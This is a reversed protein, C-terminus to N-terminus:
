IAGIEERKSAKSRYHLGAPYFFRLKREEVSFTMDRSHLAEGDMNIVSGPSMIRIERTKLHRILHPLEAYRGKQYRGIVQAVQLLNVPTVVLVDLQGDDPEADPMPHFSGGYHRGSCICILTQNGSIREGNIELEYPRHLGKFLNEVLSLLYAMKGSVLPLRRYKGVGTGIRADLGVSCINVSYATQTEDQCRILDFHAEECDLLRQLDRFAEPEDFVKIFDNGSGAPYHTVAVNPAGIVGNIVENLTGDGGCAYIRLEEGTEAAQRALERCHGPGQSVQLEWDLGRPDFVKRAAERIAETRDCHGAAPNVILLHKM